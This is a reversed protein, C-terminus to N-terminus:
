GDWVVLKVQAPGWLYPQSGTSVTGTDLQTADVFDGLTQNLRQRADKLAASRNSFVKGYGVQSDVWASWRFTSYPLFKVADEDDPAGDGDTDEGIDDESGAESVKQKYYDYLRITNVSDTDYYEPPISVRTPTARVGPSRFVSKYGSGDNVSVEVENSYREVLYVESSFIDPHEFEKQLTKPNSMTGGFKQLASVKIKGYRLRSSSLNYWLDIHSLSKTKFDSYIGTPGDGYFNNGYHELYATVINTGNVVDSADLRYEREFGGNVCADDLKEGNFILYVNWGDYCYENGFWTYDTDLARANFHLSANIFEAGRPLEFSEVKFIGSKTQGQAESTMNEFYIRRHRRSSILNESDTSYKIELKSGPQFETPEEASADGKVRIYIRNMGERLEETFDWRAYVTDGNDQLVTYDNKVQKGNVTLQEFKTDGNYEENLYFYAYHKETFNPMRFKKVVELKGNSNASGMAPISVVKTENKEISTARARARFGESPRDIRYGSVMRSISSVSDPSKLPSSAYIVRPSGGENVQIRYEYGQIKSGFYERAVERAYSFNRAAWLLAIGDIISRDLDKQEMVTKEVLEQRMSENLVRFSQRSALKMADRGTTSAQQYEISAVEFGTSAIDTSQGVVALTAAMITLALFADFSFYFGKNLAM